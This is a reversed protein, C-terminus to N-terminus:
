EPAASCMMFPKASLTKTMLCPAALPLIAASYLRAAVIYIALFVLARYPNRDFDGAEKNHEKALALAMVRPGRRLATLKSIYHLENMIHESAGNVSLRM